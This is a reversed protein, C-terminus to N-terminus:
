LQGRGIPGAAGPDSRLAWGFGYVPPEATRQVNGGPAVGSTGKAPQLEALPAADTSAPAMAHSAQALAGDGFALLGLLALTTGNMM